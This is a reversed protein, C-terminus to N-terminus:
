KLPFVEPLVLTIVLAPGPRSQEKTINSDHEVGELGATPMVFHILKVQLTGKVTNEITGLYM